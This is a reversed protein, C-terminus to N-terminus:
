IILDTDLQYLSYEDDPDIMAFGADEYIAEDLQNIVSALLINAGTGKNHRICHALLAKMTGAQDEAAEAFLHAILTKNSDHDFHRRLFAAGKLQPGEVAVFASTCYFVDAELHELPGDEYTESLERLTVSDLSSAYIEALRTSINGRGNEGKLEDTYDFIEM